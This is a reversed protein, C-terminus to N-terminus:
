VLDNGVNKIFAHTVANRIKRLKHLNDCLGHVDDSDRYVSELEKVLSCQNLKRIGGLGKEYGNIGQVSCEVLHMKLLDEIIHGYLMVEGYTAMLETSQNMGYTSALKSSHAVLNLGVLLDGGFCAVPYKVFMNRWVEIFVNPLADRIVVPHLVKGCLERIPEGVWVARNKIEPSSCALRHKANPLSMGLGQRKDSVIVGLRHDLLCRELADLDQELVQLPKGIDRGEGVADGEIRELEKPGLCPLLQDISQSLGDLRSASEEYYLLNEAAVRRSLVDDLLEIPLHLDLVAQRGGLDDRLGVSQAPAHEGLGNRFVFRLEPCGPEGLDFDYELIKLKAPPQQDSSGV